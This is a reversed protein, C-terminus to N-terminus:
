HICHVVTSWYKCTVSKVDLQCIINTPQDCTSFQKEDMALQGWKNWGWGFLKGNSIAMSHRSGCSVFNFMTEEKTELLTPITKINVEEKKLGLQGSENWGWVYVDGISSLAMSHWSGTAIQIIKVGELAEIVKAEEFVDEVTGHGLQGKSGRGYSYVVGNESLMLMHENGCAVAAFTEPCEFTVVSGDEDMGKVRGDNLLVCVFTTGVSIDKVEEGNTVIDKVEIPEESFDFTPWKKLTFDKFLVFTSKTGCEILKIKDVANINCTIVESKPVLPSNYSIYILKNDNTKVFLACWGIYVSETKACSDNVLMSNLPRLRQNAANIESFKLHTDFGCYFTIPNM